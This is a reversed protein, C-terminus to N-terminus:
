GAECSSEVGGTSKRGSAGSRCCRSRMGFARLRVRMAMWRSFSAEVWSEHIHGSVAEYVSTRRAGRGRSRFTKECHKSPCCGRARLGRERVDGPIHSSSIASTSTSRSREIATKARRRTGDSGPTPASASQEDPLAEKALKEIDYKHLHQRCLAGLQVALGHLYPTKRTHRLVFDLYPIIKRWGPESTQRSSVASIAFTNIMFCLLGEIILVVSLSHDAPSADAAYSTGETKIKCGLDFGTSKMGIILHQLRRATLINMDRLIFV